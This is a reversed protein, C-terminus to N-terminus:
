GVDVAVDDFVDQRLWLSCLGVRKRGRGEVLNGGPTELALHYHNSMIVWAHVRWGLKEATEGLGRLL